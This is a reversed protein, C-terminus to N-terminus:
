RIPRPQAADGPPRQITTRPTEIADLIEGAVERSEADGARNYRAYAALIGGCKLLNGHREVSTQFAAVAVARDAASLEEGETARLIAEQARATGIAALLSLSPGRLSGEAIAHTATPVAASVDQGRRALSGLLVLARRAQALRAAARAARAAPDSAQPGAIDVLAEPFRPAATVAGPEGGAAPLFFSDLRDVIAVGKLDAFKMILRTLFPGRCEDDLPDVLVLVPPIDGVAQQQLFQVTELAGPTNIRAAVLVLVTDRSDRAAFIAERGTPVRVPRYGFRSVAAAISEAAALDPHAVVVRDIGTSTAAHLLTAVVRSSGAYPPDGAATALAAAAEFQLGADPIALARVLSRRVAPPLPGASEGPAAGLSRAAAAAAENMCRMAAMDLVDAVTSPDFGEPGSLAERLRQPEIRDITGPRDGEAVVLSELQALLALRVASTEVAGLAVLDRALHAAERARVARPPEGTPTSALRACSEGPREATEPSLLRDLRAAIRGGAVAAAPPAAAAAEGRTKGRREAQRRLAAVARDRVDPPLDPAIAPALLFEEIGDIGGADLADIVGPWHPVDDTGLWDLLTRRGDDGLERVLGRAIGRARDGAADGTGLVDVLAPLADTGARALRDAAALRVAYADSRLDAAARALRQPDRRRLRAADRIAALVEPVTEDRGGVARELRLLADADVGDGLDALLDLRGDGAQGIADILRAVYSLAVTHAEVDAARIAADLLDAPKTRPPHALSDVVSQSLPDLREARPAAALWRPATGHTLLLLVAVLLPRGSTRKRLEM